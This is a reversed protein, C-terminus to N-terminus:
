KWKVWNWDAVQRALLICIVIIYFLCNWAKYGIRGVYLLIKRSHSFRFKDHCLVMKLGLIAAQLATTKTNALHFIEWWFVLTTLWNPFLIINIMHINNTQGKPYECMPHAADVKYKRAVHAELFFDCTFYTLARTEWRSLHIYQLVQTQTRLSFFFFGYHMFSLASTNIDLCSSSSHM